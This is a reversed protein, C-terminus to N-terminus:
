VIRFATFGNYGLEQSYKSPNVGWTTSGGPKCIASFADQSHLHGFRQDLTVWNVLDNSADFRWSTM